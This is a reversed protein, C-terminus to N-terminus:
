QDHQEADAFAILCRDPGAMALNDTEHFSIGIHALANDSKDGAKAVRM